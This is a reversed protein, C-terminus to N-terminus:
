SSKWGHEILTLGWTPFFGVVFTCFLAFIVHTEASVNGYVLDANFNFIAIAGMFLIIIAAVVRGWKKTTHTAIRLGTLLAIYTLEIGQGIIISPLESSKIPPIPIISGFAVEPLQLWIGWQAQLVEDKQQTGALYAESTQTQLTTVLLAFCLM